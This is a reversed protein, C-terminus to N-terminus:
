TAGVAGAAVTSGIAVCRVKNAGALAEAAVLSATSARSSMLSTVIASPRCSAAADSGAVIVTGTTAPTARGDNTLLTSKSWDRTICAATLKCRHFAVACEVIVECINGAATTGSNLPVADIVWVAFVVSLPSQTRMSPVSTPASVSRPSSPANRDDEFALASAQYVGHAASVVAIVDDLTLGDFVVALTIAVVVPVATVDLPFGDLGTEVATDLLVVEAAVCVPVGTVAVLATVADGGVDRGRVCVAVGISSIATTSAGAGTTAGIACYVALAARARDAAAVPM